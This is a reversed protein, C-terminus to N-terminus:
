QNGGMFGGLWQGTNDMFQGGQETGLWDSVQNGLGGWFSGQNAQQMNQQNMMAQNQAIASQAINESIGMQGQFARGLLGQGMQRNRDMQTAYQDRLSSALNGQGIRGQAQLIGSDLGSAAAQRKNMLNQLAMQNMGQQEMRARQQVNFQSDPDMYSQAQTQMQSIMDQAPKMYEAIQEPTIPNYKPAKRRGGGFITNIAKGALAGAVQGWFQKDNGSPGSQTWGNIDNLLKNM